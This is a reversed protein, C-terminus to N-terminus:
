FQKLIYVAFWKAELGYELITEILQQKLNEAKDDHEQIEWCLFRDNYVADERIQKIALGIYEDIGKCDGMIVVNKM